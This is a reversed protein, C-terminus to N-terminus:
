RIQYRCFSNKSHGPTRTLLSVVPHRRTSPPRRHLRVDGAPPLSEVDRISNSPHLGTKINERRGQGDYHCHVAWRSTKESSVRLPMYRTRTGDCSNCHSPGDGDPANMALGSARMNESLYYECGGSAIALVLRISQPSGLLCSVHM